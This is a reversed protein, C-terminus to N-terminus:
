ALVEQAAEEYADLVWAIHSISMTVGYDERLLEQTRALRNERPSKESFLGGLGELNEEDGPKVKKNEV